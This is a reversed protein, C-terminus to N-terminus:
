KMELQAPAANGAKKKRWGFCACMPNNPAPPLACQSWLCCTTGMSACLIGDKMPDELDVKSRVILQKGRAACFPRGDAKIGSYGLGCCFWYYLWRTNDFVAPIEFAPDERSISGSAKVLPYNFCTLKPAGALPPLQLHQTLCLLISLQGCLGDEEDSGMIDATVCTGRLCLGKFESGILPDSVPGGGLGGCCCYHLWWTNDLIKNRDLNAM